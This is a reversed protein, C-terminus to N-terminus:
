AAAQGNLQQKRANLERSLDESTLKREAPEDEVDDDDIQPKWMDDADDATTEAAAPPASVRKAPPPPAGRQGKREPPQKQQQALQVAMTQLQSLAEYGRWNDGTTSDYLTPTGVLWAPATRRSVVHEVTVAHDPPFLQLANLCLISGLDHRDPHHRDKSVYLFM